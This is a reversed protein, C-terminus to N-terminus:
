RKPAASLYVRSGLLAASLLGVLLPKESGVRKRMLSQPVIREFCIAHPPQDAKTCPRDLDAVMGPCSALCRQYSSEIPTADRCAEECALAARPGEPNSELPLRFRVLMVKGMGTATRLHSQQPPGVHQCAGTAAAALSMVLFLAMACGDHPHSARAVPAFVM